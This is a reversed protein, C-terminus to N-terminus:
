KEALNGVGSISDDQSLLGTFYNALFYIISLQVCEMDFASGKTWWM